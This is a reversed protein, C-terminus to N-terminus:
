PWPAAAREQRVPGVPRGAVQVDAFAAAAGRTATRTAGVETGRPSASEHPRKARKSSTSKPPPGSSRTASYRQLADPSAPQDGRDTSPRPAARVASTTTAAAAIGTRRPPPRISMCEVPPISPRKSARRTRRIRQPRFTRPSRPTTATPNTNTDNGAVIRASGSTTATTSSTPPANAKEIQMGCVPDIAYQQGGGLRERNRYLWYLVAFAFLFAINLFTTYNWRFTTTVITEPRSTPIAGAVYFLGETILGATAMVAYFWVFMRLTLRGGYYKRYILVLPLAILDAFIFSIVGGFSIGGHWLAAAMPVNGISCVFSIFVIFPGVLVNEVSTWFGHGTMFVDNWVHMPVLVTLFGAVGYGIVLEKRLMTIDAMTYSAADAWAAKSTLKQRWPTRELEAQRDDSVGVMAQHDHGGVIGQQLRRRAKAVLVGRTVFGATLVLLVIMIPGGIFEAAAFQWGMLVLLVLGLQLVLNTSAFMFVMASVFDAGKKSFRSRWRAERCVFLEVVGDRVGFLVVVAKPRHDGMVRQLVDKSVFAQVVGSLSFGLILAWLTAWFM